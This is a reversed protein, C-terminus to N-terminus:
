AESQGGEERVRVAHHHLGAGEVKKKKIVRLGLTPHYLLRHAKFALWGRFREVNRGARM